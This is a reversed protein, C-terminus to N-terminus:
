AGLKERRAKEKAQWKEIGNRSAPSLKDLVKYDAYLLDDKTVIDLGKLTEATKKGVGPLGIITEQPPEVSETPETSEKPEMRTCPTKVKGDRIIFPRNCPWANFSSPRAIIDDVAVNFMDGDKHYGYNIPNGLVRSAGYVTSMGASGRYIAEVMKIDSKKKKSM